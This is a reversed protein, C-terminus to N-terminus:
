LGWRPGLRGLHDDDVVVLLGFPSFHMCAFLDCKSAQQEILAGDELGLLLMSASVFLPPSRRTLSLVIRSFSSLHSFPTKGTASATSMQTKTSVM